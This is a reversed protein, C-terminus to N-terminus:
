GIAAMETNAFFLRCEDKTRGIEAIANVSSENIKNGTVGVFLIDGDKGEKILHKARVINSEKCTGQRNTKIFLPWFRSPVVSM